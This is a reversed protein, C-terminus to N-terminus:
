KFAINSWRAFRIPKWTCPFEEGLKAGRLIGIDEAQFLIFVLSRCGGMV